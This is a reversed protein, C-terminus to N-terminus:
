RRNGGERVSAGKSQIAQRLRQRYGRSEGFVSRFRRSSDAAPHFVRTAHGDGRDNQAHRLLMTERAAASAKVVIIESIGSATRRNEIIAMKSPPSRMM